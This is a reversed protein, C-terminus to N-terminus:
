EEAYQGPYKWAPYKFIRKQDTFKTSYAANTDMSVSINTFAKQFDAIAFEQTTENGIVRVRPSLLWPMAGFSEFLDYTNVVFVGNM